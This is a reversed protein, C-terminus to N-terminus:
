KGVYLLFSPLKLCKSENVIDYMRSMYLWKDVIVVENGKDPRTILIDKDDDLKNFIKYIRPINKTSIYLYLSVYTYALYSLKTKMEGVNKNDKFDKTM